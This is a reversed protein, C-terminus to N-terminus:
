LTVKRKFTSFDEIKRYRTVWWVFEGPVIVFDPGEKKYRPKKEFADLSVVEGYLLPNNEFLSKKIKFTAKTGKSLSYFTVTPTYKLNVDVVLSWEAPVDYKIKKKDAQRIEDETIKKNKLAGKKKVIEKGTFDTRKGFDQNMEFLSSQVAEPEIKEILEKAEKIYFEKNVNYEHFPKDPNYDNLIQVTKGTFLGIVRGDM